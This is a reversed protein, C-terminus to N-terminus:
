PNMEQPLFPLQGELLERGIILQQLYQLNAITHRRGMDVCLPNSHDIVLARLLLAAHTIPHIKIIIPTSGTIYIVCDCNM